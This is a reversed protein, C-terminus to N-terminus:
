MLVWFDKKKVSYPFSQKKDIREIFLFDDIISIVKFMPSHNLELCVGLSGIVPKNIM